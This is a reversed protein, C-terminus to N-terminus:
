RSPPRFSRPRATPAPAPAARSAHIRLRRRLHGRLRPDGQHDPRRLPRPERFIRYEREAGLEGRVYATDGRALIVRGEQTAVIRPANALQNTEFIVAENLFPEILNFPISAIGYFAIDKARM